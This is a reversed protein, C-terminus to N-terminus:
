WDTKICYANNVDSYAISYRKCDKMSDFPRTDDNYLYIRRTTNEPYAIWGVDRDQGLKKYFRNIAYALRNQEDIEFCYPEFQRWYKGRRYCANRGKYAKYLTHYYMMNHRGGEEEM